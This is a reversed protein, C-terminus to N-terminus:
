HFHGIGILGFRGDHSQMTGAEMVARQRDVFCTWAFALRTTLISLCPHGHLTVRHLPSADAGPAPDLAPGASASSHGTSQPVWPLAKRGSIPGYRRGSKWASATACPTPRHDCMYCHIHIPYQVAPVLRERSRDLGEVGESLPTHLNGKDSVIGASM